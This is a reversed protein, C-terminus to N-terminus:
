TIYTIYTISHSAIHPPLTLHHLATNAFNELASFIHSSTFTSAIFNNMCIIMYISTCIGPLALSMDIYIYDIYIYVYVHCWTIYQSTSYHSTICRLTMYHIYHETSYQIASYQLTIYHLTFYHFTTYNFTIYDFTVYHQTTYQM